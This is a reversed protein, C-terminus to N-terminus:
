LVNTFASGFVIFNRLGSLKRNPPGDILDRLGVFATELTTQADRLIDATTRDPKSM